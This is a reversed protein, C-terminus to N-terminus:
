AAVPDPPVPFPDSPLDGARRPDPGGRSAVPSGSVVSRILRLRRCRRTESPTRLEAAVLAARAADPSLRQDPEKALLGEIVPRLAGACLFPGPADELVAILTALISGRRFPPVGEVAAFLTAGLSFLDSAPGVDGGDAQEPAVYAPSGLFGGGPVDSNDDIARSIGFDTLVVRGGDCLFVNGPKVDRHVVGTQHTARLAELLWLGVRTVESVPLPGEADLAEGLTRGSLREMVIWVLGDGEVVDHVSVVGRHHVNAAARAEGLALALAATQAEEAPLRERLVVQKLAVSRNLVEDQALWVVGMSGRGLRSQLRYRGVVLRTSESPADM